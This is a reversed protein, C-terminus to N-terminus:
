HYTALSPYNTVVSMDNKRPGRSQKLISYKLSSTNITMLRVYEIRELFRHFNYSDNQPCYHINFKINQHLRLNLSFGMFTLLLQKGFQKM